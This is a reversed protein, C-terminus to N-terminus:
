PSKRNDFPTSIVSLNNFTLELTVLQPFPGCDADNAVINDNWQYFLYSGGKFSSLRGSFADPINWDKVTRHSRLCALNPPELYELDTEQDVALTHLSSLLVKETNKSSSWLTLGALYLEKLNKTTRLLHLITPDVISMSHEDFFRLRLEELDQLADSGTFIQLITALNTETGRILAPRSKIATSLTFKRVHGIDVSTLPSVSWPDTVHPEFDLYLRLRLDRLARCNSICPFISSIDYCSM